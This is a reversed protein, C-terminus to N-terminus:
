LFFFVVCFFFTPQVVIANNECECPTQITSLIIERSFRYQIILFPMYEFAVARSYFVRYYRSLVIFPLRVSITCQNANQLVVIRLRRFYFFYFSVFVIYVCACTIYHLGSYILTENEFGGDGEELTKCDMSYLATSM